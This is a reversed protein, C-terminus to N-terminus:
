LISIILRFRTLSWTNKDTDFVNLHLSSRKFITLHDHTNIFSFKATLFFSNQIFRTTWIWVIVTHLLLRLNINCAIIYLINRTILRLAFNCGIICGIYYVSTIQISLLLTFSFFPNLQSNFNRMLKNQMHIDHTQSVEMIPLAHIININCTHSVYMIPLSHM